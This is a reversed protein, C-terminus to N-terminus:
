PETWTSCRVNGVALDMWLTLLPRNLVLDPHTSTIFLISGEKVETTM